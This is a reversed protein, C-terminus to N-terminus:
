NTLVSVSVERVRTRVEVVRVRVEVAADVEVLVKCGRYRAPIRRRGLGQHSGM